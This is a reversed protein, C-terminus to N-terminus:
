GERGRLVPPFAQSKHLVLCQMAATSMFRSKLQMEHLIGQPEVHQELHKHSRAWLLGRIGGFFLFLLAPTLPSLSSLLPFPRPATHICFSKDWCPEQVALPHPRLGLVAEETVGATFKPCGKRPLRLVRVVPGARPRSGNSTLLLKALLAFLLLSWLHAGRGSVRLQKLERAWCFVARHKQQLEKKGPGVLASALM